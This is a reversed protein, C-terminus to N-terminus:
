PRLLSDDIAAGGSAQIDAVAMSMENYQKIVDAESIKARPDIYSRQVRAMAEARDGASRAGYRQRLLNVAAVGDDPTAVHLSAQIPPSVHSVVAGYLQINSEDWKRMASRERPTPANPDVPVPRVSTGRVFPALEPKKWAIWASFAILWSVFAVNVGEFIPCKPGGSHEDGGAASALQARLTLLILLITKRQNFHAAILLLLGDDMAPLYSLFPPTSM